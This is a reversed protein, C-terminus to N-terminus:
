GEGLMLAIGWTVLGLGLVTYRAWRHRTDLLLAACLLAWPFMSNGYRSPFPIYLGGSVAALAIALAPAALITVVVTSVGMMRHQAAVGKSMALGAAGGIALVTGLAFVPLSIPGTAWPAMAGQAIAPFFNGTEVLLNEFQLPVPASVAPAPGVALASRIELWVAQALASGLVAAVAALIRRDRAFAWTRARPGRHEKRVALAAAVVLVAAGAVFPILNQLKFLTALTAVVPFLVLAGRGGHLARLTLWAAVAGSALATADTSIYTTGWYAPLSGVMVLGLGLAVPVPVRARRMALYLFVAALSLWFGGVARGADVFDVGAWIIPQALVRTTFFYLPTYLDATTGGAIVYDVSNPARCAAPNLPMDPVARVGHCVMYKRAYFPMKEGQRVFGQDAVVAYYGVYQYEDIPSMMEHEAVQDSTFIFSAIILALAALVDGRRRVWSTQTTEGTAQEM